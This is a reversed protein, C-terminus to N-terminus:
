SAKKRARYDTRVARGRMRGAWFGGIAHSATASAFENCQALVPCGACLERLSEAVAPNVHDAIFRSDGQCAPAATLLASQLRKWASRAPAAVNFSPPQTM